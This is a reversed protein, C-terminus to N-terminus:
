EELGLTTGSHNWCLITWIHTENRYHMERQAAKFYPALHLSLEVSRYRFGMKSNGCLYGEQFGVQRNGGDKTTQSTTCSPGRRRRRQDGGCGCRSGLLPGGIQGCGSDGHTVRCQLGDAESGNPTSSAAGEEAQVAGCSRDESSCLQRTACHGQERCAAQVQDVRHRTLHDERGLSTNSKESEGSKFSPLAYTQAKPNYIDNERSSSEDGSNSCGGIGELHCYVASCPRLWQQFEIWCRESGQSRQWRQGRSDRDCTSAGESGRGKSYNYTGSGFWSKKYEAYQTEMPCAASSEGGYVADFSGEAQKPEKPSSITSSYHDMQDAYLLNWMVPVMFTQEWKRSWLWMEVDDKSCVDEPSTTNTIRSTTFASPTCNAVETDEEGEKCPEGSQPVAKSQCAQPAFRQALSTGERGVLLSSILLSAEALAVLLIRMWRAWELTKALRLNSPVGFLTM